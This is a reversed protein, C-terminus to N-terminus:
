KSDKAYEFSDYFLHDADLGQATFAAKAAEVM